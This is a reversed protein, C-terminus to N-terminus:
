FFDSWECLVDDSCSIPKGRALLLIKKMCKWTTPAANEEKGWGNRVTLWTFSVNVRRAEYERESQNHRQNKWRNESRLSVNFSHHNRWYIFDRNANISSPSTEFSNLKDDLFIKFTKISGECSLFSFTLFILIELFSMLLARLVFVSLLKM